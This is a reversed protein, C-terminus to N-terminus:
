DQLGGSIGTYTTNAPITLTIVQADTRVNGGNQIRVAYNIEGGAPIPDYETDTINMTLGQAQATGAMLLLVLFLGAMANFLSLSIKKM